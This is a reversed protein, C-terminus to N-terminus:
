INCTATHHITLTRSNRPFPHRLIPSGGLSRGHERQMTPFYTVMSLLRAEFLELSAPPWGMVEFTGRIWDRLSDYLNGLNRFAGFDIMYPTGNNDVVINSENIDINGTFVGKLLLEDLANEDVQDAKKVLNTYENEEMQPIAKAAIWSDGFAHAPVRVGLGKLFEYSRELRSYEEPLIGSTDSFKFVYASWEGCNHFQIDTKWEASHVKEGNCDLPPQYQQEFATDVTIPDFFGHPPPPLDAKDM